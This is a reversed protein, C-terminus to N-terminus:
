ASSHGQQHPLPLFARQEALSRALLFSRGHSSSKQGRKRGRLQSLDSTSFPSPSVTAQWHSCTSIFPQPFTSMSELLQSSTPTQPSVSSLLISGYSIDTALDAEAKRADIVDISFRSLSTRACIKEVRHQSLVFRGGFNGGLLSKLRTAGERRSSEGLCRADRM